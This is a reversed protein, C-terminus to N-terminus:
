LLTIKEKYKRYFNLYVKVCSTTNCALQYVVLVMIAISTSPVPTSECLFEM